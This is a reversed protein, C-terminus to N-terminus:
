YRTNFFGCFRFIELTGTIHMAASLASFRESAIRYIAYALRRDTM